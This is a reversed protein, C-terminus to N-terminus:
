VPSWAQQGKTETVTRMNIPIIAETMKKRTNFWKCMIYWEPPWVSIVKFIDEVGRLEDCQKSFQLHSNGYCVPIEFVGLYVNLNGRSLSCALPIYSCTVNSVNQFFLGRIITIFVLIGETYLWTITLNLQMIYTQKM